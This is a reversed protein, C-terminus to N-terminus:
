TKDHPKSESTNYQGQRFWNESCNELEFVPVEVDHEYRDIKTQTM